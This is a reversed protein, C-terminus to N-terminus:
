ESQEHTKFRRTSAFHKYSRTDSRIGAGYLPIYGTASRRLASFLVTGRAIFM